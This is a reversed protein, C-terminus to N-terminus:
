ALLAELKSAVNAARGVERQHDAVQVDLVSATSRFEGALLNKQTAQVTHHDMVADLRKATTSLVKTAGAVTHPTWFLAVLDHLSPIRLM